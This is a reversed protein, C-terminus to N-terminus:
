CCKSCVWVSFKPKLTSKVPMKGPTSLRLWLAPLDTRPVQPGKHKSYVTITNIYYVQEAKSTYMIYFQVSYTQKLLNEFRFISSCSSSRSSRPSTKTQRVPGCTTRFWHGSSGIQEWVLYEGQKMQVQLNVQLMNQIWISGMTM